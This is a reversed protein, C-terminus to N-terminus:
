NWTVALARHRRELVRLPIVVSPHASSVARCGTEVYLTLATLGLLDAKTLSSHYEHITLDSQM